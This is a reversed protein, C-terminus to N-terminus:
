RAHHHGAHEGHPVHAPRTTTREATEHIMVQALEDTLKDFLAHNMGIDTNTQVAIAFGHDEYYAMTSVYGAVWGAHGFVKGFKGDRIMVGIGYLKNPGLTTKVADLMCARTKDNFVRGRYLMHAWDALDRSTCILGGGTWEAQPNIGYTEDHAVERPLSFLNPENTYGSVLGRLKPRDAPSTDKLDLPKLIRRQLEDYYPQKTVREIIM